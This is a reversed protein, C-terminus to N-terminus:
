FKIGKVKRQQQDRKIHAGILALLSSSNTSTTTREGIKEVM